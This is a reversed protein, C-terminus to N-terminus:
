LRRRRPAPHLPPSELSAYEFDLNTTDKRCM